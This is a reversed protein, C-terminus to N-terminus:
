RKVTEHMEDIREQPSKTMSQLTECISPRHNSIKSWTRELPNRLVTVSQVLDQGYVPQAMCRRENVAALFRLKYQRAHFRKEELRPQLPSLM